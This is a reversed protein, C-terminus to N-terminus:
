LIQEQPWQDTLSTQPRNFDFIALCDFRTRSVQEM